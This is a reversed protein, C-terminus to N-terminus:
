LESFDAVVRSAGAARLREAREGSAIGLFGWGVARAAALDWPGDGVYTIEAGERRSSDPLLTLAHRMISERDGAQDSTALPLALDALGACQLKFRASHEWGGTAIAVCGAPQRELWHRAGPFARFSAPEDKAAAELLAAFRAKVSAVEQEDPQRGLTSASWEGLIGPDTVNRFQDLALVEDTTGFVQHVAQWYCRNDAEHSPMLTGDLDLIHIPSMPGHYRAAQFKDPHLFLDAGASLPHEAPAKM